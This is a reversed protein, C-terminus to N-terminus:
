PKIEYWFYIEQINPNNWTSSFINQNKREKYFRITFRNKPSFNITESIISTSYVKNDKVHLTLDETKTSQIENTTESTESHYTFPNEMLEEITPNTHYIEGFGTLNYSLPYYMPEESSIYNSDSTSAIFGDIVDIKTTDETKTSFLLQWEEGTPKIELEIDKHQNPTLMYEQSFNSIESDIELIYNTTATEHNSIRLSLNFSENLYLTEPLFQHNHFYMESFSEQQIIKNRMYLNFIATLIIGTILILVLTKYFKERKM